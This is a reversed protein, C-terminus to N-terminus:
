CEYKLQRFVKRAQWLDKFDMCIMGFTKLAWYNCYFEDKQVDKIHDCLAQMIAFIALKKFRWASDLNTVKHVGVFDVDERDAAYIGMIKVLRGWAHYKENTMQRVDSHILFDLNALYHM